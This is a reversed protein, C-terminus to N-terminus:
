IELENLKNICKWEYLDKRTQNTQEYKKTQENYKKIFNMKFKNGIIIDHINLENRNDVIGYVKSKFTKGSSIEYLSIYISDGYTKKDVVIYINKFEENKYTIIGLYELQYYILNSINLDKNEIRDWMYILFDKLRFDKYKSKTEKDCFEKILDIPFEYKKEKNFETFNMKVFCYYIKYLKYSKGFDRFYGLSILVLILNQSIRKKWNVNMLFDIFTKISNDKSIRDLEDCADKNISKINKLGKYISNTKKDFSYDYSSYRFRIEDCKFGFIKILEEGMEVDDINMANNLYATTFELPYYCRLYACIYTLMSYAIAHNYNFSYSSSDEIVKLFDQCEKEAVEREKSSNKCYGDLIMPLYEKMKEKDKQSITRRINDSMSGSFGCIKQLFSITQEQFLLWGLSDKLIEDIEKTPNKNIEHNILKERFSSANPRVVGTVLAIDQVNVPNFDILKQFSNQNEFQFLGAKSIKISDYVKKDNWDIEDSRKWPINIYRYVDDILQVTKSSLLDYKILNVDHCDDMDIQLIEIKEGDKESIFTGYNKRLNIPSVIIGASHVSQSIYTDKIGEFCYFLDQYKEKTRKPNKDYEKKIEKVKKIDYKYKKPNKEDMITKSLLEIAGKEGNTGLSLVFCSKDHGFRDFIYQYIINRKSPPIDIDIDGVELRYENAFRSFVTNWEIPNVDTIDLLYSIKSGTVSGRGFGIPIGQERIWTCLESMFLIFGVMNLKKFVKFEEKISSKFEEIQEKPIIKRNVKNAFNKLILKKTYEEDNDYLSAYKYSKDLEFDEVMDAIKNTNELAELITEKNLVGQKEFMEIMEDYSKFNLDLSENIYKHKQSGYKATIVAKRCVSKYEDLNHIDSTAVLKKKHKLSMEYLFLNYEKQEEIFHPQVELYDYKDILKNLTKYDKRKYMEWLPSSICGSLKIVNESLDLFEDFTIRPKSYFHEEDNSKSVLECIEKVGDINKALLISHYNDKRKHEKEETLYIEIGFIFKIKYRECILKSSVWKYINGHNTMAIAKMNEKKARKVYDEFKTASDLLSRDDHLHLITYNHKM